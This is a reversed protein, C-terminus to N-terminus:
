IKINDNRLYISHILMCDVTHAHLDSYRSPDNVGGVKIHPGLTSSLYGPQAAPARDVSAM